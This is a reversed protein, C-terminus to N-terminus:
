EAGGPEQPTRRGTYAHLSSAVSVFALLALAVIGMVVEM